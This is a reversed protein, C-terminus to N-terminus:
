IISGKIADLIMLGLFAGLKYTTGELNCTTSHLKDNILATSYNILVCYVYDACQYEGTSSILNLACHM